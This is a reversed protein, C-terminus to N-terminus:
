GKGPADATDLITFMMEAELVLDGDVRTEGRVWGFGGRARTTRVEMELRDGPVVPRRFRVKDVGAFLALRGAFAPVTLLMVGALQALAELSLVGPMMPRGPFHGNFFEENATVNKIGRASKGPDLETVRDVLLFPYRHPLIRQIEEIKLMLSVGFGALWRWM